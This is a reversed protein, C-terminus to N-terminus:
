PEQDKFDTVIHAQDSDEMNHKGVRRLEDIYQGIFPSMLETFRQHRYMEADNRQVADEAHVSLGKETLEDDIVGLSHTMAELAQVSFNSFRLDESSGTSGSAETGASVRTSVYAEASAASILSAVKGIINDKTNFKASAGAAVQANLSGSVRTQDFESVASNGFTSLAQDLRPLIAVTGADNLQGDADFDQFIQNRLQFGGADNAAFQTFAQFVSQDDTNLGQRVTAGTNITTSQDDVVQHGAFLRVNGAEGQTIDLAYTAQIAENNASKQKMWQYQEDTILSNQQLYDAFTHAAEGSVSVTNIAGEQRLVAEESSEALTEAIFDTKLVQAMTRSAEIGATINLFSPLDHGHEAAIKQLQDGGLGHRLHNALYGLAIQTPSMAELADAKAHVGTADFTGMIRGVEAPSYGLDSAADVLADTQALRISHQNAQTSMGSYPNGDSALMEVFAPLRQYRALHAYTEDTDSNGTLTQELELMDQTVQASAVRQHTETDT